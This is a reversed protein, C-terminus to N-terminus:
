SETTNGFAGAVVNSNSAEAKLNALYDAWKQMMEKREPLFTTRNYARGNPDKVAHALQHEIWDVRFHLVEDLITRAMARFGHGSMEDKEIGMRRMAALIANDSMPRQSSRASPFVYKGSGTLLQQERLIAVAQRSLPVVIPEGMKMKAGPIHWETAELEMERWEAHRLEGPRVFLLPALRLAAKVTPTGVYDDFALLLPGVKRPDTISALHTEKPNALAGKLDGSPDREARGTAVGYRFIQGATQKIRHAIEVAGRHEVKRLAALLDPATISAIPRNGLYPFLNRELARLVRTSYTEAWKPKQKAYWERAVVEFSNSALDAQALKQARKVESPDIGDDLLKRAEDHRRGAKKLSVDPYVGLALRKEKGGFRFKYRWYKGGKPTVELYMGKGAGLKYTKEKPKANKAKTDTMSM